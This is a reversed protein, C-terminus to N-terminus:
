YNFIAARRCGDFASCNQSVFSWCLKALLSVRKFARHNAQRRAPVALSSV